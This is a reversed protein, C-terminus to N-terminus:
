AEAPSQPRLPCLGPEGDGDNGGRGSGGGAGGERRLWPEGGRDKPPPLPPPDSGAGRGRGCVAGRASSPGTGRHQLARALEPKEVIPVRSDRAIERIRAALLDAGKAVVIPAAMSKADYKLAVAVHTPNTVVVNATKVKQLMCKRVMAIMASRMRSRVQVPIEYRKREDKVEQKTMRMDRQHQWRRYLLDAVAIVALVVSIRAVIGVALSGMGALIGEPSTWELALISDMKDRLFVYVILGIVVFKAVSLPLQVVSKLSFLTKIGQVPSLNQPKWSISKTSINWGSTVVSGLVSAVCAAGLLPALLVLCDLGREYLLHPIVSTKMPGHYAFLLGKQFQGVWFQYLTGGMIALVVLFMVIVM